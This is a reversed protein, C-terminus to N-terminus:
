VPPLAYKQSYMDLKEFFRPDGEKIRRLVRHANMDFIDM